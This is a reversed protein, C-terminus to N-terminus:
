ITTCVSFLLELIYEKRIVSFPHNSQFFCFGTPLAGRLEPLILAFIRGIVQPFFQGKRCLVSSKVFLLRVIIHLLSNKYIFAVPITRRMSSRPRTTIGLSIRRVMRIRSPSGDCIVNSCHSFNQKAINAKDFLHPTSSVYYHFAADRGWAPFGRAAAVLLIVALVKMGSMKM